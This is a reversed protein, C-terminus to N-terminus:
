EIVASRYLNRDVTVGYANKYGRNEWSKENLDDLRQSLSLKWGDYIPNVYTKHPLFASMILIDGSNVTPIESFNNSYKESDIIYGRETQQGQLLGKKHMSSLVKVGHSEINADTLNCWCIISNLSSGMSPYDQHFPLGYGGGTLDNATYHTVLSGCFVPMSINSVERVTAVFEPNTYISSVSPHDGFRKILERNPKPDKTFRSKFDDIFIKKIDNVLDSIKENKIITWGLEEFSDKAKAL